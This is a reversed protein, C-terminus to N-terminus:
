GPSQDGASVPSPEEALEQAPAEPQGHSWGRAAEVARRIIHKSPAREVSGDDAPYSRLHLGIEGVGGPHIDTGDIRITPSGPFQLFEADQPTSVAIMQIPTEFADEILVEVLRQRATMYEPDADWFLLEVRM